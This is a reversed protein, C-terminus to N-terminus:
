GPTGVSPHVRASLHDGELGVRLQLGGHEGVLGRRDEGRVDREAAADGPILAEVGALARLAPAVLVRYDVGGDAGGQPPPARDVYSSAEVQVEQLARRPEDASGVVEPGEGGRLGVVDAELPYHRLGEPLPAPVEEDVAYGGVGKEVAHDASQDARHELHRVAPPLHCGELPQERAPLAALGARRDGAPAEREHAYSVFLHVEFSALKACLSSM